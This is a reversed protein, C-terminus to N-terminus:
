QKPKKHQNIARQVRKELLINEEALGLLHQLIRYDTLRGTVVKYVKSVSCGFQAAVQKGYDRPLYCKLEGLGKPNAM